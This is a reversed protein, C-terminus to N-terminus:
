SWQPLRADERRHQHPDSSCNLTLLLRAQDPPRTQRVSAKFLPRLGAFPGARRRRGHHPPPRAVSDAAVFFGNRQRVVLQLLVLLPKHSDWRSSRNSPHTPLHCVGGGHHQPGVVVSRPKGVPGRDLGHLGGHLDSLGDNCGCLGSLSLTYSKIIYQWNKYRVFLHRNWSVSPLIILM